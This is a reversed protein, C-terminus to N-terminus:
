TLGQYLCVPHGTLRFYTRHGFELTISNVADSYGYAFSYTLSEVVPTTHRLIYAMSYSLAPQSASGINFAKGLRPELL